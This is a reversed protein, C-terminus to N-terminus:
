CNRSALSVLRDYMLDPGLLCQSAVPVLHVPRLSLVGVIADERDFVRCIAPETLLRVVSGILLLLGFTHVDLM